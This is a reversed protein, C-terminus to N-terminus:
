ILFKKAAETQLNEKATQNDKTANMVSILRQYFNLFKEKM